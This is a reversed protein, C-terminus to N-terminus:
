RRRVALFPGQLTSVGQVTASVLADGDPLGPPVRLTFQYLGACCPAAGAYVVDEAPVSVGGFTFSVEHALRAQGMPIQGAALAPETPGFGTGFLSVFEGPEAPTLVAGPIAGPPGALGAGGGHLAAIPNRGDPRNAFNFFAPSVAAVAVTEAPSRQEGETGCGRIAEVRTQRGTTLDHPAQANIQYPFVAFLPARKGDIELCTEALGAAIRGAADLEPSRAQTGEPAFGQGFVSVIANPSIRKVIPTGTAPAVGGSSILPARPPSDLFQRIHPYFVAFRTYEDTLGTPCVTEDERIEGSSLAGVVTGPSSFVASGSSGPETYGREHSVVAYANRNGAIRGFAIRQFDGWLDNGPHHIGAAQTDLPQPEADWGQFVVAAPLEGTLLLLAMDGDPNAREDTFGGLAALLRAGATRPANSRAPREGNCTETRYFWFAIVSRAHEERDVCHAATLFYPAADERRNNLLTGSCIFSSGGKEFVIQAVGKASDAWEPYCTVDPHCDEFTGEQATLTGEAVAATDYLRLSVYYTGVQLPPDSSDTILIRENGSTGRSSYDSVIRGGQVANDQGFRVYLDVDTSPDASELIFMLGPAGGSFELRFSQEGNFLTPSGVPGLRFDAPQGPTLLGGSQGAPSQEEAFSLTATLAGEAAADTDYLLLSVYYTGARLPPNSYRTIFFRENGSSGWSFYDSVVRDDQITNDQGFRVYLDVDVSSDVSTLDFTAREADAPVDLRFSNEGNFLMPHGVPGLRFDAPQGPTLLGGSQGAPSQEEAFSLTATLAGEAAADTDYLLLSVYYTGARLPPNSYRTIFFRENGSSGWSFYDSVVRDDQITNDQGFRVYLDVDVSSDVSTLDFTAREAGAPVELRFSREGNFLTPRGVPELRFDAPQGPMLLGGTNVPSPRSRLKGRTEAAALKAVPKSTRSKGKAAQVPPTGGGAAAPGGWIHSVAAIRFPAAEQPPSAPDPRYEITASEGFVIGSWFDGDGYMGRGGYPGDIQGDATHLWVNGAGIDFDQFHVRLGRAGPSTVRLRWLRGVATAQWAGAITTGVAEGASNPAATGAPLARHVGVPTLGQQPRLRELDDARLPPLAAAAPAPLRLGLSPPRAAAAKPQGRRDPALPGIRQSPAPFAFSLFLLFVAARLLRRAAARGAGGPNGRWHNQRRASMAM